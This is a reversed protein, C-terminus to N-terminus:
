SPLRRSRPSEYAALPAARGHWESAAWPSGSGDPGRRASRTLSPKVKRSPGAHSAVLLVSSSDCMCFGLDGLLKPDRPVRHGLPTVPEGDVPELPQEILRAQALGARDGIRVHFPDDGRGQFGRRLVGRM